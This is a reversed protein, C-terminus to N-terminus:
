AAEADDDILPPLKEKEEAASLRDTVSADQVIRGDRLV